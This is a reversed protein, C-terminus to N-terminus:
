KYEWTGDPYLRVGPRPFAPGEYDWHPGVPPKHNLDPHLIEQTDKRDGRVWNGQSEEPKGAGKWEYGKEPCKTGDGLTDGKYPPSGPEDSSRRENGKKKSLYTFEYADGSLATSYFGSSSIQPMSSPQFNFDLSQIMSGAIGGLLGNMSQGTTSSIQGSSVLKDTAWYVLTGAVLAGGVAWGIPNSLIASSAGWSLSFLPIAWEGNPDYHGLPDNHLYTYLNTGDIFGAPDPSIWIGLAPDYSRKGISYLGLEPDFRRSAYRWPNFPERLSTTEEGFATYEYTQRTFGHRNLLRRTSNRYDTIPIFLEGQLEIAIPRHHLGPVFVDKIEGTPHFSAIEQSGDYLYLELTNSSKTLRRSLPDSTFCFSM